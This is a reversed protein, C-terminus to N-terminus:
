FSTNISVGVGRDQDLVPTVAIGPYRESFYYASGIGILAGALVDETEHKDGEVRTYAVYGAGIYAPIAWRWGYRRQVFTAAAFTDAAHGSPFSDDGSHDPRENPFSHKLGEVALRSVVGSKASQIAGEFDNEYYLSGVLASAPILIHLVNGSTELSDAYCLQSMMLIFAICQFKM